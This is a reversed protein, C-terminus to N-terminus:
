AAANARRSELMVLMPAAWIQEQAGHASRVNGRAAVFASEISRFGFLNQYFKTAFDAALDDRIDWRFGLVAPVYNRAMEFVFGEESSHCSSLFLFQTDTLWNAFLGADLAEIPRESGPLFLFGRGAPGELAPVYVSHGSYHVLHWKREALTDELHKSFSKNNPVSAANIRVVNAIGWEDQNKRDKLNAELWACEIDINGLEPLDIEGKGPVIVKGAVDAEIVLCNFTGEEEFLPRRSQRTGGSPSVSLTRYIPTRLM